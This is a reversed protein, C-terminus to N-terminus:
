GAAPNAPTIVIAGTVECAAALTNYVTGFQKMTRHLLEIRRPDEDSDLRLVYRLRVLRAPHVDHDATVRVTAARYRFRLLRSFHEFSQLLSAAFASLLLDIPTPLRSGPHEATNIVLPAGNTLATATGIGTASVTIETIKPTIKQMM